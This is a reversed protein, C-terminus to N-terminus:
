IAILGTLLNLKSAQALWRLERRRMRLRRSRTRDTQGSLHDCGHAIYLALERSPDGSWRHSRCALELNAIIEGCLATQSPDPIASYHFTIVDTSYDHGLHDRNIRAIGADDTLVLSVDSQKADEGCARSLLFALLRRVRVKNVKARGTLVALQSNM